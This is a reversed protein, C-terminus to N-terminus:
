CGHIKAHARELFPAIASISFHFNMIGHLSRPVTAAGAQPLAEGPMRRDTETAGASQRHMHVLGSAFLLRFM